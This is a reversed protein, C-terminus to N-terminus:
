KAAAGVPAGHFGYWAERELLVGLRALGRATVLVQERIKESGDTDHVTFVKHTLVGQQIRPQYAVWNKSGARRYIWAREQLWVFLKRPPVQLAKAAETINVAGDAEAIRHLAEVQPQQAKVTEELALVKESYTLLLGRMAAPDNLVAMPDVAPATVMADYARIVALHFAPSIWMAYAYVLEKAVYTGQDQGGKQVSLPFGSDGLEKVLDQTQQNALWYRPQHRQEGGSARHLDNLCYRGAADRRIGVDAITLASM